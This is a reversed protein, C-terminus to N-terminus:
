IIKETEIHCSVLIENKQRKLESNYSALVEILGRTYDRSRVFGALTEM